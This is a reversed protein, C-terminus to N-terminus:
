CRAAVQLSQGLSGLIGDVNRAELNNDNRMYRCTAFPHPLRVAMTFTLPPLVGAMFSGHQLSEITLKVYLFPTLGQITYNLELWSKVFNIADICIHLVWNNNIDSLNPKM